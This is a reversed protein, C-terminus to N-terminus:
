DPWSRPILQIRISTSRRRQRRNTSVNQVTRIGYEADTGGIVKMVMVLNHSPYLCETESYM